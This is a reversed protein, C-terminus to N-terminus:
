EGALRSHLAGFFSLAAGRARRCEEALSARGYTWNHRRRPQTVQGGTRQVPSHRGVTHAFCLAVGIGWLVQAGSNPRRAVSRPGGGFIWWKLEDGDRVGGSLGGGEETFGPLGARRGWDGSSVRAGGRGFKGCLVGRDGDCSLSALAPAGEVAGRLLGVLQERHGQVGDVM